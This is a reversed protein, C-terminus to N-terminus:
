MICELKQGKDLDEKSLGNVYFGVVMGKKANSVGYKSEIEGIEYVKGKVNLKMNQLLVGSVVEAIVYASDHGYFQSTKVVEILNQENPNVTLNQLPKQIFMRVGSSAASSPAKGSGFTLSVLSM